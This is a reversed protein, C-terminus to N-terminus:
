KLVEEVVITFSGNADKDLVVASVLKDERLRLELLMGRHKGNLAYILRRQNGANDAGLDIEWPGIAKVLDAETVGATLHPRISELRPSTQTLWIILALLLLGTVCLGVMLYSRRPTAPTQTSGDPAAKPSGVRDWAQRRDIWAIALLKWISTVVFAAPLLIASWLFSNWYLFILAFCGLFGAATVLGLRADLRLSTRTTAADTWWSVWWPLKPLQSTDTM